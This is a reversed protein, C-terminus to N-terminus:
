FSIELGFTYTKGIPMEWGRTGDVGVEPDYIGYAAWTLLNTGNFYIRANSISTKKVLNKPLVYALTASKLRLFDADHLHRSSQQLVDNLDLGIIMPYKADKNEPTWRNEYYDKSRIREWFYGDDAVSRGSSFDYTNGGSKYIFNLDLSFNKWRFSSNFGGYLDPDATGIIIESAKTYDYTTSKGNIALDSQSDNNLYWLNKGTERDVGAWELGYFSLPSYGERYIYKGRTDFPTYWVIDNGEYLDTIKSKIFSATLGMDWNFDGVTLINGNLEIEVGKNNMEGINSLTTSLGTTKSIPVDQLLNKSDRNFFEVIGNIKNNFLGFEVAVNTTNNTEWSLNPNPISSLIGGPNIMYKSNSYSTLSLHGYNPSPLTGNVGYSARLRLNSLWEISQMFEEGTIRWSGAVSWFDGWRTNIGLKSSGDRRYSGSAYYIDKYTYELRSLFSLMNHGWEYGAADLKGAVSVVKLQSNPMNSGSARQYDTQNEEAEFGALITIRQNTAFEKNFDITSSSVVKSINTNYNDIKGNTTTSSYNEPSYYLFDKTHSNDFSLTTKFKLEPLITATLTEIASLRLTNSGNDWTNKYYEFNYTLSGFRATWPTGDQYNTPHYIPWLLNRSQMFYNTGTNYSDNFGKQESKSVSINTTSEFRKGIKQTLNLRGSIREYNNLVSRGDENTYSLSTYYNTADTTGSIAVDYTQYTATRFLADEWDFETGAREGTVTLSNVTNDPALFIYGHKNFRNNLQGLAYVSSEQDTKNLDYKHANWFLEYEMELQQESNAREYNDTAFSSSFGFSARFDVKTKGSKGRKTQILIVGNAARSGYLASAAADKLVTISEIDAPNLSNMANNISTYFQDNLQGVSGSVVPVGDIVYLPENSANMSGTGRVRISPTAGAQGTSSSVQLGSVKGNLANQFSLEPADKIVDQKVVSAAGTFTGKKATGYAVVIIEDINFVDSELVVNIVTQKGVVIEKPKMGFSNFVLIGNDGSVTITYSGNTGTTVFNKTGKVTVTAFDVPTGNEAVTITGTVRQQANASFVCFLMFLMLYFSHKM